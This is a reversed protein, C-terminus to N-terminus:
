HGQEIVECPQRLLILCQRFGGNPLDENLYACIEEKEEGRASAPQMKAASAARKQEDRDERLKERKSEKTEYTRMERKETGQREEKEKRMLQTQCQLIKVTLPSHHM